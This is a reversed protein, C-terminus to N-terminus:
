RSRSPLRRDDFVALRDKIALKKKKINTVTRDDPGPRARENRLAMELLVHFGQLRRALVISM